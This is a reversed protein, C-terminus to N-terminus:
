SQSRLVLNRFRATAVAAMIELGGDISERQAGLKESIRVAQKGAEKAQGKFDAKAVDLGEMEALKAAELFLNTKTPGPLKTKMNSCSQRDAMELREDRM